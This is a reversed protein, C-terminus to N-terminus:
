KKREKKKERERKEKRKGGSGDKVMVLSAGGVCHYLTRGELGECAKDNWKGDCKEGDSGENRGDM